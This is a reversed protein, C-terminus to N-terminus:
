VLFLMVIVFLLASATALGTIFHPVSAAATVVPKEESGATEEPSSVGGGSGPSNGAVPPTGGNKNEVPFSDVSANNGVGPPAGGNKNAPSVPNIAANMGVFPIWAPSSVGADGGKAVPPAPAPIWGKDSGEPKVVWAPAGSPGPVPGSLDTAWPYKTDPFTITATVPKAGCSTCTQVKTTFGHPLEPRGTVSPKMALGTYLEQIVYPKNVLGTPCFSAFTTTYSDTWVCTPCGCSLCSPM